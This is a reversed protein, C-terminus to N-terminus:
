QLTHQDFYSYKEFTYWTCNAVMDGHVCLWLTDVVPWDTCLLVSNLVEIIVCPLVHPSQIGFSISVTIESLICCLWKQTLLVWCLRICVYAYLVSIYHCIAVKKGNVFITVNDVTDGVEEMISYCMIPLMGYILLKIKVAKFTYIYYYIAIYMYGTCLSYM